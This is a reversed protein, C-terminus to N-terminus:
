TTLNYYEILRGYISSAYRSLLSLCIAFFHEQCLLLIHTILSKFTDNATSMAPTAIMFASIEGVATLPPPANLTTVAVPAVGVEFRQRSEGETAIRDAADLNSPPTHFDELRSFLSGRGPNVAHQVGSRMKGVLSLHVKFSTAQQIALKTRTSHKISQLRRAHRQSHWRDNFQCTRNGLSGLQALLM